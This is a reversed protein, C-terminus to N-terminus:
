REILTVTAALKGAEDTLVSDNLGLYLRGAAPAPAAHTAGVVFLAGNEGLRGLLVAHNACGIISAPRDLTDPVGAPGWTTDPTPAHDDITGSATIVLIDGGAVDVQTDTWAVTAPHSVSAPEGAQYPLDTELRVAFAGSNNGVDTDNVGLYLRGAATAVSVAEAGAFFPEGDAGIRGILGAHDSCPVVNYEDHDAPAFGEPGISAPGFDISGSALLSFMEGRELDIGTDSWTQGADIQLSFETPEDDEGEGVPDDAKDGADPAAPEPEDIVLSGSCASCIALLTGALSVVRRRRGQTSM